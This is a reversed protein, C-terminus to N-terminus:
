LFFGRSDRYVDPEILIVEPLETPVFKVGV